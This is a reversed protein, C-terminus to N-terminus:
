EFRLGKRRIYISQTMGLFIANVIYSTGGASVFPLPIGTVPMIGINMGINVFSQFLIVAGVGAAFIMGFRDRSVSSVIFIRVILIGFAAVMVLSGIFGTAEAWGSFIFDIQAIPLFRLQSQTANGFGKGYLGGSGVAIKSQSVNYGSGLPDSSPEMFSIVRTKQYPQLKLWVFPSAVLLVLFGYILYKKPTGAQVLAVVLMVIITLATGLDPEKFVLYVPVLAAILFFVIRLPRLNEKASFYSAAFILLFVKMLESPQFQFFGLSIWRRSGFIQMGLLDVLILFVLGIVYLYWVYNKTERYDLMTFVIYAVIGIGFYVAQDWVLSLNGAFSSISYLTALSCVTLIVPIIILAWDFNPNIKIRPIKV